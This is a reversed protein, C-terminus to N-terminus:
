IQSCEGGGWRSAVQHFYQYNDYVVSLFRSRAEHPLPFPEFFFIRDIM